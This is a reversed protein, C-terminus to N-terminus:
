PFFKQKLAGSKSHLSHGQEQFLAPVGVDRLQGQRRGHGGDLVDVDVEARRFQVQVAAGVEFTLHNEFFYIKTSNIKGLYVCHCHM